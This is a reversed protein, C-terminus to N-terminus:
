GHHQDATTLQRRLHDLGRALRSKVTGPSIDLSNATQETSWDLFYRLVVVSRQETSLQMLANRLQPDTVAATVSEAPLAEVTVASSTALSAQRALARAKRRLWSRGWNLGVTYVWGAPNDYGSVEGWKDFCKTFAEDAAELGLAHDGLTLALARGVEGAKAAYFDEFSRTTPTALDIIEISEDCGTGGVPRLRSRRSPREAAAASSHDSMPM